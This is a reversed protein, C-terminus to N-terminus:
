IQPYRQESYLNNFSSPLMNHFYRYKFLAVAENNIDVLPIISLEKFLPGTHDTFKSFTIIRTIKKQLKRIPLLRTSYTNGWAINGYSLYPHILSCYLGAHCEPTSLAKSQLGTPKAINNCGNTM